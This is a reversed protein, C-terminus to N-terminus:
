KDISKQLYKQIEEELEEWDLNYPFQDNGILDYKLMLLGRIYSELGKPNKPCSYVKDIELFRAGMRDYPTGTRFHEKLRQKLKRETTGIKSVLFNGKDNYFKILYFFKGCSDLDYNNPNEIEDFIIRPEFLKKSEELYESYKSRYTRITSMAYGFLEAIFEDSENKIKSLYVIAHYRYENKSDYPNCTPQITRM